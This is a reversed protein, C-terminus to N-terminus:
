RDFVMVLHNEGHNYSYRLEKTYNKILEIGLGGIQADFISDPKEAAQKDLPNFAVGQDILEITLLSKQPIFNLQVPGPAHDPYAYSILNTVAEEVALEIYFRNREDLAYREFMEHLWSKLRPMESAQNSIEIKETLSMTALGNM